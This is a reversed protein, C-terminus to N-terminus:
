RALVFGLALGVYVLLMVFPWAFAAGTPDDSADLVRRLDHDVRTTVERSADLAPDAVAVEVLRASIDATPLDSPASHTETLYAAHMRTVKPNARRV